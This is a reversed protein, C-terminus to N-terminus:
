LPATVFFWITMAIFILSPLGLWFLYSSRARWLIAHLIDRTNWLILHVVATLLIAVAIAIAFPDVNLVASLWAAMLWTLGQLLAAPIGLLISFGLSAIFISTGNALFLMGSRESSKLIRRIRLSARLSTLITFIMGYILAATFALIVGSLAVQLPSQYYIM